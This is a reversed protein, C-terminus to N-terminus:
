IKRWWLLRRFIKLLSFKGIQLLVDTTTHLIRTHTTLRRRLRKSRKLTCSFSPSGHSGIECSLYWGMYLPLFPPPDHYNLTPSSFKWTSLKIHISSLTTRFGEFSLLPFRSPQLPSCTNSLNFHNSISLQLGGRQWSTMGIYTMQSQIVPDGEKRTYTILNPLWPVILAVCLITSYM